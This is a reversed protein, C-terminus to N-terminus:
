KALAKHVARDGKLWQPTALTRLARGEQRVRLDKEYVKGDKAFDYVNSHAKNAEDFVLEDISRASTLTTRFHARKAQSAMQKDAHESHSNTHPYVPAKRFSRSM